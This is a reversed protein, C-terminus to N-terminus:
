LFDLSKRHLNTRQLLAFFKAKENGAFLTKGRVCSLVFFLAM